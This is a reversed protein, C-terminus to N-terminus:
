IGKYIRTPINLEQVKSMVVDFYPDYDKTGFYLVVTVQSSDLEKLFINKLLRHYRIKIKKQKFYEITKNVYEATFDNLSHPGGCWIEIKNDKDTKHSEIAVTIGRMFQPYNDFDDHAYAYIIM